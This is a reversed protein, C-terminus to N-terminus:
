KPNMEIYLINTLLLLGKGKKEHGQFSIKAFFPSSLFPFILLKFPLKFRWQIEIVLLFLELL